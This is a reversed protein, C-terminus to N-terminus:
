QAPVNPPLQVPSPQPQTTQPPPTPVGKFPNLGSSEMIDNFWQRMQPDQLIQPAVIVQRIINSLKSVREALDYQKNAINVKVSLPANKMEGKFIELFRKNGQKLFNQKFQDRQPALTQDNIYNGDPLKTDGNLVAEKKFNNFYNTTVQEAITELEELSLEALFTNGKIIEETIMPLFWDDYMEALFSSIMGKRREHPGRGTKTVLDQLAFPTGSSPSVGLLADNAFGMQKAHEEWQVISNEFLTINAPQTNLQAAPKGDDYVFVEGNEANKTNNRTTYGTDATQYIVKAAQDLMGKIRIIDYNVWVQPEFLEEAGGLGLSRNYIEDRLLLKFPSEAEAGKFLCLGNKHGNEDQYFVVIHLQSSYEVDENESHYDYKDGKNLWTKPFTGHVEYVDINKGVTRNAKSTNQPTKKENTSLRILQEITTTAGKKENGWDLKTGIDKLQSPSFSHKIGISGALIDSQDCFALSQLKVVEPMGKGTNKVLVGGFDVYSEIMEDIFKDLHNELAWKDHFKRVLFSKYFLAPDNVFLEIDKVDFDEATYQLMLIPRIINKFPKDDNKGTSFVSNKYLVTLNIHENMSWDWKDTVAHRQTQYATEETTVLEYIDM